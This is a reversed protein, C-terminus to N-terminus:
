LIFQPWHTFRKTFPYFAALIAAVIALKITLPNLLCVLAFALAYLAVFLIIASRLRLRGSTLPRTKTREVHRDFQRDAADNIVCGAARMLVVGVVFVGLVLLNPIGKAAIWLAWLAPWLLLLMGIPQHFRMLLLFDIPRNITQHRM